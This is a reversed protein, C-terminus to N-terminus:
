FWGFYASVLFLGILALIMMLCGGFIGGLGRNIQDGLSPGKSSPRGVGGTGDDFLAYTTGFNGGDEWELYKWGKAEWKEKLKAVDRERSAQTLGPAWVRKKRIAM